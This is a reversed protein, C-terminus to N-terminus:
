AVTIPGNEKMLSLLAMRVFVARGAQEFYKAQPLNDVDPHIENVRPLAHMLTLDPRAAAITEVRICFEDKVAEYDERSPFREAQVRTVYLM